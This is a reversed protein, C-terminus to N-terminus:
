GAGMASVLAAGFGLVVLQLIGPIRWRLALLGCGTLVASGGLLWAAQSAVRPAGPPVGDSEFSDAWGEMGVAFVAWAVFMLDIVLLAVSVGIQRGTSPGDAQRMDM